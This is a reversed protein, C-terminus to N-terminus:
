GGAASCCAVLAHAFAHRPSLPSVIRRISCSVRMYISRAGECPARRALSQRVAAGNKKKSTALVSVVVAAVGGVALAVRLLLVGVNREDDNSPVDVARALAEVSVIATSLGDATFQATLATDLASASALIGTSLPSSSTTTATAADAVYIEAAVVVSGSTITLSVADTTVGAEAALVKQIALRESARADNVTGALTFETM